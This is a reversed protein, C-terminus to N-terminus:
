NHLPWQSLYDNTAQGPFSLCASLSNQYEQLFLQDHHLYEPSHPSIPKRILRDLLSMWSLGKAWIVRLSHRHNMRCTRRRGKSSWNVLNRSALSTCHRALKSLIPGDRLTLLNWPFFFNQFEISILQINVHIVDFLNCSRTILHNWLLLRCIELPCFPVISQAVNKPM